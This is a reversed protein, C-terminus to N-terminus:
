EEIVEEHRTELIVIHRAQIVDVIVTNSSHGYNSVWIFTAKDMRYDGGKYGQFTAGVARKAEDLFEGVTLETGGCERFGVALQDYYGRFSDLGDPVMACFDFYLPWESPCTELKTILEGLTIQQKM